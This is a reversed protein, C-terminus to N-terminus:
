HNLVQEQDAYRLSQSNRSWPGPIAALSASPNLFTFSTLSKLLYRIFFKTKPCLCFLVSNSGVYEAELKIELAARRM